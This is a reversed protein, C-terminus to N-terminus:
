LFDRGFFVYGYPLGYQPEHPGTQEPSIYNLTGELVNLNHISPNERSLQTSIGFDIIKLQQNEAHYIINAPNIDKHIIHQAHIEGLVNVTKLAISLFQSISLCGTELADTQLINALSQGGFDEVIMLWTHNYEELKFVKIIGDSDLSRTLDYERRFRAIDIASPYDQKLLKLIVSQQDHERIARYVQSRQSEYIKNLSNYGKIEIM